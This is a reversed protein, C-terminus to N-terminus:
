LDRPENEKEDDDGHRDKHQPPVPQREKDKEEKKPPSAPPTVVTVNDEEIEDRTRMTSSQLPSKPKKRRIPKPPTSATASTSAPKDNNNNPDHYLPRNVSSSTDEKVEVGAFRRIPNIINDLTRNGTVLYNLLTIIWIAVIIIGIYKLLPRIMHWTRKVLTKTPSPCCSMCICCCCRTGCSPDYLEDPDDLENFTRRAGMPGALFTAATQSPLGTMSSIAQIQQAQMLNSSSGISAAAAAASTMPGGGSGLGGVIPLFNSATAAVFRAPDERQFRMTQYEAWEQGAVAMVLEEVQQSYGSYAQLTKGLPGLMQVQRKPMEKHCLQCQNTTRDTACRGCIIHQCGQFVYPKVM